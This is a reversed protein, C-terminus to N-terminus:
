PPKEVGWAIDEPTVISIGSLHGICAVGTTAGLLAGSWQRLVAESWERESTEGRLRGIPWWRFPRGDNERRQMILTYYLLM